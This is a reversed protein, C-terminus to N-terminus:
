IRGVSISPRGTSSSSQPENDKFYFLNNVSNTTKSILKIIKKPPYPCPSQVLKKMNIKYSRGFTINLGCNREALDKSQNQKRPTEEM